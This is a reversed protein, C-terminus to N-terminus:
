KFFPFLYPNRLALETKTLLADAESILQDADDTAHKADSSATELENIQHIEQTIDNYSHSLYDCRRHKSPNIANDKHQKVIHNM